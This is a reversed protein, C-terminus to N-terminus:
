PSPPYIGPGSRLPPADYKKRLSHDDDLGWTRPRQGHVYVGAYVPNKLIYKVFTSTPLQWVLQTKGGVSKHVPLELHEEHLWQLVQRVSWLERCKECVLEMTQQVRGNPDKVLSKGDACLYGPAILKYLEGRQAKHAQGQWLRAKLVRLAVVGADREDRPAM